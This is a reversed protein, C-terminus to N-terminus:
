SAKAPNKSLSVGSMFNMRGANKQNKLADDDGAAFLCVDM